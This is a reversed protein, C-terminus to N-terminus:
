FGVIERAREGRNALRYFNASAQGLLIGGAKSGVEGPTDVVQRNPEVVAAVGRARKDRNALRYIEKSTQGLLIGGAEGALEFPTKSNESHQLCFLFFGGLLIGARKEAAQIRSTGLNIVVGDM